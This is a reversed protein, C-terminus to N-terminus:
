KKNKLNIPRRQGRRGTTQSGERPSDRQGLGRDLGLLVSTTHRAAEKNQGTKKVPAKPHLPMPKIVPRAPKPAARPQKPQKPQRPKRKDKKVVRLVKIEDDMEEQTLGNPPSNFVEKIIEIEEGDEQNCRRKRMTHWDPSQQNVPHGQNAEWGPIPKRIRVPQQGAVGKTPATQAAAAWPKAWEPICRTAGHHAGPM